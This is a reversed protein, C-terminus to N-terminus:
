EGAALSDSERLHGLSLLWLSPWWGVDATEPCGARRSRSAAGPDASLGDMSQCRVPRSGDRGGKPSNRRWKAAASPVGEARMGRAWSPAREPHLTESSARHAEARQVRAGQSKMPGRRARGLLAAPSRPFAFQRLVPIHSNNAPRDVALVAPFQASQRGGPAYAPAAKRKTVKRQGDLSFHGAGGPPSRFFGHFADVLGGSLMM